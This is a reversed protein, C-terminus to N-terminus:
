RHSYMGAEPESDTYSQLGGGLVLLGALLTVYLGLSPALDTTGVVGVAEALTYGALGLTIVGLLAAILQASETWDAVYLLGIAVIGM